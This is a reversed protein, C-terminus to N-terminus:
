MSTHKLEEYTFYFRIPSWSFLLNTTSNWNRMPLTFVTAQATVASRSVSTEIGWLYLLFEVGRKSLTPLNLQKLEEYTFYFRNQHRRPLPAPCHKLEEYTFYFGSSLNFNNKPICPKLEEYTFYFGSTQMATESAASQKLEEYTFYFGKGNLM